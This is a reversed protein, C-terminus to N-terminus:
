RHEAREILIVVGASDEIRLLEGGVGREAAAFARPDVMFGSRGDSFSFFIPAATDDSRPTLDHGHALEGTFHAVMGGAPSDIAVDVREGVLELLAALAEDLSM